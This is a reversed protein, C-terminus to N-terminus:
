VRGDAVVPTGEFGEKADSTKYEWLVDLKEPLQCNSLANGSADGRAVPWDTLEGAIAGMSVMALALFM